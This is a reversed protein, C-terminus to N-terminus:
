KIFLKCLYMKSARYPEVLMKRLLFIYIREHVMKNRITDNSIRANFVAQGGRHFRESRQHTVYLNLKGWNKYVSCSLVSQDHRNEIFRSFEHSIEEGSADKVFEPHNFMTEYWEKIVPKAKVTYIFISCQIQYMEKLFPIDHLYQEILSKRSREVMLAGYYFFIAPHKKMWKWFTNWQKHKFIMNGGDSYVIIDSEDCSELTKLCIYPKWIWYGGGRSYKFLESNKVEDPLDKDTYIIIKDFEGSSIAEERIRDLSKYYNMDGYTIFIKKNM